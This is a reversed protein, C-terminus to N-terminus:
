ACDHVLKLMYPETRIPFVFLYSPPAQPSNETSRSFWPDRPLCLSESSEAELKSCNGSKLRLVDQMVHTKVLRRSVEDVEGPRSINVFAFRKGSAAVHSKRPKKAHKQHPHRPKSDFIMVVPQIKCSVRTVALQGPDADASLTSTGSAM